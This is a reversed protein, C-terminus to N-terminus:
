FVLGSFLFLSSYSIFSFFVERHCLSTWVIVKLLNVFNFSWIKSVRGVVAGFLFLKRSPTKADFWVKTLVAPCFKWPLRDQQHDDSRAVLPEYMHSWRREKWRRRPAVADTNDKCIRVDCCVVFCRTVRLETLCWAPSKTCSRFPQIDIFLYNFRFALM